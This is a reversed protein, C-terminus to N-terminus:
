SRMLAYWSVIEEQKVVYIKSMTSDGEYAVGLQLTWLHLSDDSELFVEKIVDTVRKIDQNDSDTVSCAPCEIPYLDLYAIMVQSLKEIEHLKAYERLAREIMGWWYKNVSYTNKSPLRFPCTIEYGYFRKEVTINGAPGNGTYIDMWTGEKSIGAYCIVERLYCTMKESVYRLQRVAKERESKGKAHSLKGIQNEMAGIDRCLDEIIEDAKEKSIGREKDCIPMGRENQEGAPLSNKLRQLRDQKDM